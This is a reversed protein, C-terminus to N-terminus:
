LPGVNQKGTKINLLEKQPRVMVLIHGKAAKKCRNLDIKPLPNGDEIMGALHTAIAKKSMNIAEELNNGTSICGAIDPFFIDYGGSETEEFVAPYYQMWQDKKNKIAKRNARKAERDADELKLDPLTEDNLESSLDMGRMTILTITSGDKKFVAAKGKKRFYYKGNELEAFRYYTNLQDMIGNLEEDTKIPFHPRRQKAHNTFIYKM